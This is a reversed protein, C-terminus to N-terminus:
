NKFRGSKLPVSTAYLMFIFLGIGGCFVLAIIGMIKKATM